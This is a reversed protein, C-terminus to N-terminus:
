RRAKWLEWLKGLGYAAAPVVVGFVVPLLAKERELDEGFALISMVQLGAVVVWIVTFLLWLRKWLAV